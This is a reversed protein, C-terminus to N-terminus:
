NFISGQDQGFTEPRNENTFVTPVAPAPATWEQRTLRNGDPKTTQFGAFRWDGIYTNNRFVNGQQFTVRWPILAGSFEPYSGYNAFIGSVACYNAGACGTGVAAKDVRFTNNEVINNETSWRCRFKDGVSSPITDNPGNCATETYISGVKITGSIHTHASSGSYRDANEWMSVGGWNNEFNNNSFVSPVHKLGYGSPSGNDSIYITGIPFPDNRNRFERGKVIANRKFNNNRVKVDYGAEVFLGEADNNEILNNEITFGRNNNDLWVGVSKNDHVWNNTFTVNDNIWFKVGGTCGCGNNRNEWDGTNNGALENHDVVFNQIEGADNDEGCCSNIAYQGNDKLCNYRYVGDRSGMLAAGQNNIITNNEITWGPGADHNVVGQDLPADFNRVTLYKITVNSARQTFAFRNVNMGDLIAGPAGIYTSGTAPEIQGFESTGLTHVGPAFWYTRNAQRFDVNENNGAPVTIAGAPAVAPGGGLISANGCIAAPPATPWSATSAQGFRVAQGGSANADDVASALGVIAGTEAENSAVFVAAGSSGAVLLGATAFLGAVILRPSWKNRQKLKSILEVVTM